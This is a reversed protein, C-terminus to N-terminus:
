GQIQGLQHLQADLQRLEVKLAIVGPLGREVELVGLLGYQSHFAINVGTQIGFADIFLIQGEGLLM